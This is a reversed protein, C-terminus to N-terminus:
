QEGTLICIIIIFVMAICHLRHMISVKPGIM